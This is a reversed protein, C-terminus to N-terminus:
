AYPEDAQGLFLGTGDVSDDDLDLPEDDWSDQGAPDLIKSLSPPPDDSPPTYTPDAVWEPDDDGSPEPPTLDAAVPNGRGLRRELHDYLSNMLPLDTREDLEIVVESPQIVGCDEEKWGHEHVATNPPTRRAWSEVPVNMSLALGHITERLHKTALPNSNLHDTEM